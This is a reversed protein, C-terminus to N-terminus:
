GIIGFGEEINLARKKQSVWLKYQEWLNQGAKDYEPAKNTPAIAAGPVNYQMFNRRYHHAAIFLLNACTGMLLNYRYPFTTYDYNELQPLAENYYDCTLTMATRIEESSFEVSDLLTNLSPDQDRMWIRVDLDTLYRDNGTVM